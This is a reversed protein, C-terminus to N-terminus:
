LRDHLVGAGGAEPLHPEVDDVRVRPRAREVLPAAEDGPGLAPEAGERGDEAEHRRGLHPPRDLRPEGCCGTSGNREFAARGMTRARRPSPRHALDVVVRGGRQVAQEVVSHEDCGAAEAQAADGLQQEGRIRSAPVLSRVKAELLAPTSSNPM